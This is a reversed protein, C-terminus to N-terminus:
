KRLVSICTITGDPISPRTEATFWIKMPEDFSIPAKSDPTAARRSPVTGETITPPAMVTTTM